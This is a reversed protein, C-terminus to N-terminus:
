PIKITEGVPLKNENKIVDRNASLIKNWQGASGYFRRAIRSLTDGEAIVYTRAAPTPTPTPSPVAEPALAQATGPRTPQRDAPASGPEPELSAIRNRLVENDRALQNVEDQAQRLQNRLPVIQLTANAQTQLTAIQAKAADVQQSLAANEGTLKEVAAKLDSNENQIVSFSRLATALKDQVEALQPNADTSAAAATAGATAQAKQADLQTKLDAAEAASKAAAAQAAALDAKLQDSEKWAAALEDTLQKNDTRLAAADEPAAAAAPTPTPTPAAQAPAAADDARLVAAALALPALGLRFFRTM